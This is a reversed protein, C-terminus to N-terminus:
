VSHRICTSEQIVLKLLQYHQRKEHRKPQLKALKQHIKMCRLNQQHNTNNTRCEVRSLGTYVMRLLLLVTPRYFFCSNICSVSYLKLLIERCNSFEGFEDRFLLFTPWDRLVKLALQQNTVASPVLVSLVADLLRGLKEPTLSRFVDDNQVFLKFGPQIIIYIYFMIVTIPLSEM